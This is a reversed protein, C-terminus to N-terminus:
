GAAKIASFDLPANFMNERQNKERRLIQRMPATVYAAHKLKADSFTSYKKAVADVTRRIKEDLTNQSQNEDLFSFSQPNLGLMLRDNKTWIELETLAKKIKKINLETVYPGEKQRIIYSTTIRESYRRYHECEVLYFLKHLAFYSVEGCSQILERAIASVPASSPKQKSPQKKGQAIRRFTEAVFQYDVLQNIFSRHIMARQGPHYLPILVRGYWNWKKRVGDSLDIDHEEILRLASLSQGGLTVVIKPNVLDIQRKLFNSCNGLEHKNPTSNNGKEDKPNCLAANTIFCDYRSLGVQELLTEFNEGARDGHFPLSSTDAGLRGPAEGIILIPSDLRGCGRGLVRQSGNMRPCVICSHVEGMLVEFQTETPTRMM